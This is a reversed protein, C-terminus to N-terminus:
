STLIQYSKACGLVLVVQYWKWKVKEEEIKIQYVSKVMRQRLHSLYQFQHFRELCTTKQQGTMKICFCVLCTFCYITSKSIKAEEDGQDAIAVYVSCKPLCKAQDVDLWLQNLHNRKQIRKMWLYNGQKKMWRFVWQNLFMIWHDIM